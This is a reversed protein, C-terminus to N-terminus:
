FLVAALPVRCAEAWEFIQQVAREFAPIGAECKSLDDRSLAGGMAISVQELGREGRAKRLLAGTTPRQSTSEVATTTSLVPVVLTPLPRGLVVALLALRSGWFQTDTTPHHSLASPVTADDAGSDDGTSARRPSWGARPSVTAPSRPAPSLCGPSESASSRRGGAGGVEETEMATITAEPVALLEAMKATTIGAERRFHGLRLPITALNSAM